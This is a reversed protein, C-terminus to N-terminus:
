PRSMHNRPLVSTADAATVNMAAKGRSRRQSVRSVVSSIWPRRMIRLTCRSPGSPLQRRTSSSIMAPMSLPRRTSVLAEGFQDDAARHGQVVDAASGVPAPIERRRLRQFQAEDCAQNLGPRGSKAQQRNPRTKAGLQRLLDSTSARFIQFLSITQHLFARLICAPSGIVTLSVPLRHALAGAEKM